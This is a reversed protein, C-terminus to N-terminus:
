EKEVATAKTVASQAPKVVPAAAAPKETVPASVTGSLGRARVVAQCQLSCFAGKLRPNDVFHGCQEFNACKQM